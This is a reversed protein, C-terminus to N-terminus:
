IKFSLKDNFLCDFLIVQQQVAAYQHESVDAELFWFYKV